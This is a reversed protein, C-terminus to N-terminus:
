FNENLSKESKKNGDKNFNRKCQISKSPFTSQDKLIHKRLEMQFEFLITRCVRHSHNIPFVQNM